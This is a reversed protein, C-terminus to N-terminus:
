ADGMIVTGPNLDPQRQKHEERRDSKHKVNEQHITAPAADAGLLFGAIIQEEDYADAEEDGGVEDERSIVRGTGVM